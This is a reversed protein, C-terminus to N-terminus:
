KDIKIFQLAGWLRRSSIFMSLIWFSSLIHLTRLSIQGCILKSSDIHKEVNIEYAISLMYQKRFTNKNTQKNTDEVSGLIM